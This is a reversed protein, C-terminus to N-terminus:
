SLKNSLNKYIGIKLIHSSNLCCNFNLMICLKM